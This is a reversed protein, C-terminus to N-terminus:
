YRALIADRPLFKLLEEWLLLQCDYTEHYCEVYDQECLSLCVSLPSQMVGALVKASTIVRNNM